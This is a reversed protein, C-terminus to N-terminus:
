IKWTMGIEILAQVRKLFVFIMDYDDISGRYRGCDRSGLLFVACKKFESISSSIRTGATEFDLLCLPHSGILIICCPAVSTPM